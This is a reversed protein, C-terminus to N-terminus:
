ATPPRRLPDAAGTHGQRLQIETRDYWAPGLLEFQGDLRQLVATRRKVNSTRTKVVRRLLEAPDTM